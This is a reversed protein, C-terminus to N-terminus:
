SQTERGIWELYAPFGASIPVAIIEPM